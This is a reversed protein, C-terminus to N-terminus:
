VHARGIKNEALKLDLDACRAYDTVVVQSEPPERFVSTPAKLRVEGVWPVLTAPSQGPRSVTAVVVCGSDTATIVAGLAVAKCGSERPCVREPEPRVDVEYGAGQALGTLAQQVKVAADHDVAGAPTIRPWLVVTGGKKGLSRSIEPADGGFALAVLLVWRM